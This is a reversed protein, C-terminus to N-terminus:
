NNVEMSFQGVREPAKVDPTTMLLRKVGLPVSRRLRVNEGTLTAQGGEKGQFSMLWDGWACGSPMGM